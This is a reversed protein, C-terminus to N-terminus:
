SRGAAKRKGKGPTGREAQAKEISAKLAQMLDVVKEPEPRAVPAVIQEDAIRAQIIELLAERRENRYKEPRFATSLSNILSVAMKIENEHMNVQYHLEEILRADRIEDAYFMTSMILGAGAVRVAALSIKSRMVVNAVAVKNTEEMARRLLEYVKEGGAAPVLYYAKDYYVPDIATLDVFDQIDISHTTEEALGELDEEGIVVYRGKEYQYGRVIEEASVEQNCYPCYKRYQIPTKCRKHLSNFKLDKKETAVYIKVPVYVLGFSIAGKWLPRM